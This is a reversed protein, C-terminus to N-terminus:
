SPLELGSSTYSLCSIEDFTTNGGIVQVLGEQYLTMFGDKLAVRRLESVPASSAVLESFEGNTECMEMLAIRGSYGTNNCEDCGIAQYLPDDLGGSLVGNQQLYVEVEPTPAVPQKCYSCLRRVLRQAQSLALADALLYPEVGMSLLRSIARLSDNAHLTTLVLHGTLAANISASATEADRSEGILIVDPDARLLSRLGNPFDIGHVPDTQTQNIGEIEYEIPDEITQININDANVSNLFAYLTTTKGSGTPGTVLALGQDRNMTRKIISTQRESLNLASLEKVGDQKDLFRLILKQQEKRCPVAAVRADIRRTGFKMAFRADLLKQREQPMNAYNKILAIYRPLEEEGTSHMVVLEGDIRARFRATNYYKEIHLDSARAQVARNLVWQVVQEPTNNPNQPNVRAMETPDIEVISTNDSFYLDGVDVKAKDRSSRGRNRAVAAGIATPDALVTVMEVADSGSSLWEDEFAYNNTVSSLLFIRQHGCFVPYVNHKELLGDPFHTQAPAEEPNYVPHGTALSLFAAGYHRPLFKLGALNSFDCDDNEAILKRFKERDRDSQPYYQLFWNMVDAVKGTQPPAPMGEASNHGAIPKIRLRGELDKMVSHYQQPDILVRITLFPPVGWCEQHRPDYHGVILLPGITGVPLWPQEVATMRGLQRLLTEAPVSCTSRPLQVPMIGYQASLEELRALADGADSGSETSEYSSQVMPEEEPELMAVRSEGSLPQIQRADAYHPQDTGEIQLSNM